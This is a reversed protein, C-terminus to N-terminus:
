SRLARLPDIRAARRAPVFCAIAAIVLVILPAAAFTALDRTSVGYVLKSLSEAALWATTLGVVLGAGVIAGAQGLVLRVIDGPAAGLTARVGIERTRQAVVYSLVGFLGTAAIALAFIAFAILLLAYLRPIALSAMLRAQMTSMSDLVWEPAQERLLARVTPVLSVPDRDTRVVLMMDPVIRAGIQRYSTFIEPQGSGLSSSAASGEIREQRMDEVVGVVEWDRRDWMSFGLVQGVPDDGLYREAFTRNVVVVSRADDADADTLRRGAVLRLQLADFYGPSVTRHLAQVDIVVAANKPSPM